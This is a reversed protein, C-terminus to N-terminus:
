YFFWLKFGMVGTFTNVYSLDYAIKSSMKSHSTDGVRFFLIRSRSNGAVSIKGKLRLKFGKFHFEPFSFRFLHQILFKLYRFLVRYKWFSMRALMARIWNALLTPDKLRLSVAILMIAESSFIKHGLLKRFGSSRQDWLRCRAQDDFTLSNEIFPGVYLATKRGSINEAFQILSKHSWTGINSRFHKSAVSRLLKKRLVHKSTSIAWINSRRFQKLQPGFCYANLQNQLTAVFKQVPLTLTRPSPTSTGQVNALLPKSLFYKLLTENSWFHIVPKFSLPVLHTPSLKSISPALLAARVPHESSQLRMFDSTYLNRKHRPPTVRTAYANTRLFKFRRSRKRVSVRPIPTPLVAVPSLFRHISKQARGLPLRRTVKLRLKKFTGSSSRRPAFRRQKGSRKRTEPIIHRMTSNLSPRRYRNAFKKKRLRLQLRRFKNRTVSRRSFFSARKPWYKMTHRYTKEVFQFESLLMGRESSTKRCDRVLTRIKKSNLGWRVAARIHDRAIYRRERRKPNRANLRAFSKDVSKIDLFNAVRPSLPPIRDFENAPFANFLPGDVGSAIELFLATEYDDYDRRKLNRSHESQANSPRTLTLCRRARRMRRLYTKTPLPRFLRKRLFQRLALASVRTKKTLRLSKPEAVNPQWAQMSLKVYSTLRSYTRRLNPKKGPALFMSVSFKQQLKHPQYSTTRVANAIEPIWERRTVNGRIKSSAKHVFFQIFRSQTRRTLINLRAVHRRLHRRYKLQSYLLNQVFNFRSPNSFHSQKKQTIEYRLLPQALTETLFNFKTFTAPLLPDSDLLVPVLSLSRLQASSPNPFQIEPRKLLSYVPHANFQTLPTHKYWFNPSLILNGTSQTAYAQKPQQRFQFFTDSLYTNPARVYSRDVLWSNKNIRNLRIIPPQTSRSRFQHYDSKILRSRTTPLSVVAPISTPRSRSTVKFRQVPLKKKRSRIRPKTNVVSSTIVLTAPISGM